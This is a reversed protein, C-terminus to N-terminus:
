RVQWPWGDTDDGAAFRHVEDLWWSEPKHGLSAADMLWGACWAALVAAIARNDGHDLLVRVADHDHHAVAAILAAADLADDRDATM